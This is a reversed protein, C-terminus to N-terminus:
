EYRRRRGAVFANPAVTSPVVPGNTNAYMNGGYRPTYGRLTHNHVWRSPGNVVAQQNSSPQLFMSSPPSGVVKITHSAADMADWRSM